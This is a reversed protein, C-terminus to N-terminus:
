NGAGLTPLSISAAGGGAAPASFFSVQMCVMPGSNTRTWTPNIAAATGQILYAGTAGYHDGAGFDVENTETFGSNISMPSSSGNVGFITVIVENDETPTISGPQITTGYANNGSIQDEPSSQKVGSFALLHLAGVFYGSVSATHGTGVSTPISFFMRVRPEVRTYSNSVQTWTNSKSDTPTLNVADACSYMAILFDAGTTDVSGTTASSLGSGSNSGIFAIAM